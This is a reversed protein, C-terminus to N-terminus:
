VHFHHDPRPDPKGAVIAHFLTELRRGLISFWIFGVALGPGAVARGPFAGNV